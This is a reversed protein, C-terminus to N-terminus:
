HQHPKAKRQKRARRYKLLILGQSYSKSEVLEFERQPFGSPFLPIGEGLLIPVVGIEMEDILDAKLFERAIEGGGMLWINKGPKKRLQEAAEAASAVFVVGNRAGPDESRSLVYSEMSPGFSGGM